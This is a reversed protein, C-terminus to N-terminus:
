KQFSFAAVYYVFVGGRASRSLLSTLARFGESFLFSPDCPPVPLSSGEVSRRMSPSLSRWILFSMFDFFLICIFLSLFNVLNVYLFVFFSRLIAHSVLYQSNLYFSIFFCDFLFM